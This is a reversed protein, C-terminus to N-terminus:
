LFRERRLDACVLTQPVIFHVFLIAFQNRGAKQKRLGAGIEALGFFGKVAAIVRGRQIKKAGGHIAEGLSETWFVAFRGPCHRPDAFGEVRQALVPRRAPNHLLRQGDLPAAGTGHARLSGGALV